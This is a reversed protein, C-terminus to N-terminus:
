EVLENLSIDPNHYRGRKGTKNGYDIAKKSCWNICGMCSICNEGWQPRGDKMKINMLPCVIACLGCGICNSNTHLKKYGKSSTKNFGKHVAGSLIFNFVGKPQNIGREGNIIKKITDPLKAQARKLKEKETEASDVDSLPLYNNPMTFFDGFDLSLGKTELLKGFDTLTNGMSDGCNTVAFVYSPTGTFELERVFKEMISPCGWAYVPFVFGIKEGEFNYEEPNDLLCKNVSIIELEAAEGIKLALYKSNGTASFVFIKGKLVTDEWFAIKCNKFNM